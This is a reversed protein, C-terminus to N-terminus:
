VKVTLQNLNDIGKYINEQVHNFPYIDMTQLIYFKAENDVESSVRMKHM